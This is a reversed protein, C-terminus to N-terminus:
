IQGTYIKGNLYYNNKDKGYFVPRNDVWTAYIIEFTSRDVWTLLDYWIYVNNDDVMYQWWWLIKPHLNIDFSTKKWENYLAKKDKAYNVHLPVFTDYDAWEIVFKDETNGIVMYKYIKKSKVDWEYQNMLGNIFESQLEEKNSSSEIVKWAEPFFDASEKPIRSKVEELKKSLTNPLYVNNYFWYGCVLFIFIVLLLLLNKKM